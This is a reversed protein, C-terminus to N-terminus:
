SVKPSILRKMSNSDRSSYPMTVSAIQGLGGQQMCELGTSSLANSQNEADTSLRPDDTTTGNQLRPRRLVVFIAIALLLLVACATVAIIGATSIQAGQDQQTESSTNNYPYLVAGSGDQPLPTLQERGPTDQAFWSPYAEEISITTSTRAAPTGECSQILPLGRDKFVNPLCM